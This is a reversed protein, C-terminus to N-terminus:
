KDKWWAEKEGKRAENMKTKDPYGGYAIKYRGWDYKLYEDRPSFESVGCDLKEGDPIRFDGWSCKKPEISKYGTWTGEFQNNHFSDDSMLDNYKIEGKNNIYFNTQFNGKFIGTSKQEPDEFFEYNGKVIGQKKGPFDPDDYTKAEMITIIGQFCCINTKVKSKGYVFYELRKNPNQIVSTFHIYFRQYNPGIYGLPEPREIVFTDNRIELIKLTWLESINYHKIESIFDMDDGQGFSIGPILVLILIMLYKM